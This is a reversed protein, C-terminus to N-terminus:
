PKFEYIWYPSARNFLIIKENQITPFFNNNLNYAIPLEALKNWTYNSSLSWMTYKTAASNILLAYNVNNIRQTWMKSKSARFSEPLNPLQVWTDTNPSYKHWMGGVNGSVSFSLGLSIVVENSATEFGQLDYLPYPIDAKKTWKNAIPDFEWWDKMTTAYGPKTVTYENGGGIFIKGNGGVVSVTAARPVGPFEAMKSWKKNDIDYEWVEKSINSTTSYSMFVYVKSDKYQVFNEIYGVGPFKPGANLTGIKTLPNYSQISGYRSFEYHLGKYWVKYSSLQSLNYESTIDTWTGVAGSNQLTRIMKQTDYITEYKAPVSNETQISVFARTYYVTNALLDKIETEFDFPISSGSPLSTGVNKIVFSLSNAPILEKESYQFGYSVIPKNGTSEIRAKLKLSSIGIAPDLNKIIPLVTAETLQYSQGSGYKTGVSNIAFPRVYYKVGLKLNKLEASIKLPFPGAAKGFEIKNDAVTPESKSDSWVYGHQTIEAGGNEVITNSLKLSGSSPEITGGDEFVPLKSTETPKDTLSNTKVEDDKCSYLFFWYVVITLYKLTKM